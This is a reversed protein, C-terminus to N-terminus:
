KKVLFEYFHLCTKRSEALHKSKLQPYHKKCLENFTQYEEKTLEGRHDNLIVFARDPVRCEACSYGYFNKEKWDVRKPSCLNCM